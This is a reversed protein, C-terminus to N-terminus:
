KKSVKALQAFFYSKMFFLFMVSMGLDVKAEEFRILPISMTDKISKLDPSLRTATFMSLSM